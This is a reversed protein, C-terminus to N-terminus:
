IEHDKGEISKILQYQKNLSRGTVIRFILKFLKFHSSSALSRILLLQSGGIKAGIAVRILTRTMQLVKRFHNM